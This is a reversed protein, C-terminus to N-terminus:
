ANSVEDGSGVLMNGTQSQLQLSTTLKHTSLLLFCKRPTHTHTCGYAYACIHTITHKARARPRQNRAQKKGSRAQKNHKQPKDMQHTKDTEM